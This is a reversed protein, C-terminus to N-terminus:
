ACVALHSCHIRGCRCISKRLNKRNFQRIWRSKSFSTTAITQKNKVKTLAVMNKKNTKEGCGFFINNKLEM